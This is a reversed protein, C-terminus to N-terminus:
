DCLGDEREEPWHGSATVLIFRGRAPAASKMTIVAALALDNISRWNRCSIIIFM